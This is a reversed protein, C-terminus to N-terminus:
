MRKHCVGGNSLDFRRNEGSLKRGVCANEPELVRARTGLHHHPTGGEPARNVGIHKEFESATVGTNVMIRARDLPRM